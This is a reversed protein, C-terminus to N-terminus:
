FLFTLVKLQKLKRIEVEYPSRSSVQFVNGCDPNFILIAGWIEETESEM